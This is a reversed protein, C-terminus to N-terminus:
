FFLVDSRFSEMQLRARHKLEPNLDWTFCVEKRAELNDMEVIQLVM